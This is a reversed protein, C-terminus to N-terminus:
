CLDHGRVGGVRSSCRGARFATRPSTEAGFMSRLDRQLIAPGSRRLRCMRLGSACWRLPRLNPYRSRNPRDVGQRCRVTRVTGSQGHSTPPVAPVSAGRAMNSEGPSASRLALVSAQARRPMSPLSGGRRRSRQDRHDIGRRLHRVAEESAPKTSLLAPLPIRRAQRGEGPSVAWLRQLSTRTSSQLGLLASPGSRRPHETASAQRVPRLARGEGQQLLPSLHQRRCAKRRSLRAPRVARVRDFTRPKFVM